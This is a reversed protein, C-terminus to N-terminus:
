NSSGSLLHLSRTSVFPLGFAGLRATEIPSASTPYNQFYEMMSDRWSTVASRGTAWKDTSSTTDGAQIFTDIIKWYAAFQDSILHLLTGTKSTSWLSPDWRYLYLFIHIASDFWCRNQDWQPGPHAVFPLACKSQQPRLTITSPPSSTANIRGYVLDLALGRRANSVASVTLPIMPEVGAVLRM